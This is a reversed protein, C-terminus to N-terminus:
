APRRKLRRSLAIGSASVVGAGAVGAAVITWAPSCVAVATTYGLVGWIGAAPISATSIGLTLMAYGGVAAGGSSLVGVVLAGAQRSGGGVSLADVQSHTSTGGRVCWDSFDERSNSLPSYQKRDSLAACARDAVAGRRSKPPREILEAGDCIPERTVRQGDYSIAHTKNVVVAYHAYLMKECRIVDGREFSAMGSLTLSRRQTRSNESSSAYLDESMNDLVWSQDCPRYVTGDPWWCMEDKQDREM